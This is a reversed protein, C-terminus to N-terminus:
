NIGEPRDDVNIDPRKKNLALELISNPELNVDFHKKITQTVDLLHDLVEKEAKQPNHSIIADLIKRHFGFAKEVSGPLQVVEGIFRNLLEWLTELIKVLVKNKSTKALELHFQADLRSFEAAKNIAGAQKVFIQELRTIDDAKARIAALKVTTMEVSIRAELFDTVSTKDMLLHDSLPSLYNTASPINVITGVGQRASVLGIVSLKNIAERLTNRSVKFQKALEDQSPLKDGPKLNKEVIWSHLTNFVEDSASLRKINPYEM